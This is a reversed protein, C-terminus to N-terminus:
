VEIIPPVPDLDTPTAPQETLGIGIQCFAFIFALLFAIIRKM